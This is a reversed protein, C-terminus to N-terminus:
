TEHLFPQLVFFLPRMRLTGKIQTHLFSKEFLYLWLVILNNTYKGINIHACEDVFCYKITKVPIQNQIIEALVSVNSNIEEAPKM